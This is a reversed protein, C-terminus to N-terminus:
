CRIGQDSSQRPPKDIVAGLVTRAAPRGQGDPPLSRSPHVDLPQVLGVGGAIQACRPCTDALLCRHETCTSIWPLFWELKRRGPFARMCLPCFRQRYLLGWPTRARGTRRDITILPSGYHGALTM